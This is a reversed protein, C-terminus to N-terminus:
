TVVGMRTESYWATNMARLPSGCRMPPPVGVSVARRMGQSAPTCPEYPM